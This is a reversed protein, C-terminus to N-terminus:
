RGDAPSDPDGHRGPGPGRQRHAREDRGARRGHERWPEPRAAHPEARALDPPGDAAGGARRGACVRLGRAALEGDPDPDRRTSERHGQRAEQHAHEGLLGPDHIRRGRGRM